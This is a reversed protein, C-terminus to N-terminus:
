YLRKFGTDITVNKDLEFCKDKNLFTDPYESGLGYAWYFLEFGITRDPQLILGGESAEKLHSQIHEKNGYSYSPEILQEKKLGNVIHNLYVDLRSMEENSFGMTKALFSVSMFLRMRTLEPILGFQIHEGNFEKKLAHYFVYHMRLQYTSLRSILSNFYAGRDDRSVGTRSSALVGGFYEISLFDDAYSGENIIGKLVKPSVSGTTNIKNGLKKHANNFIKKLNEIRNKTFSELEKGIYDATPGLVKVVIDKSGLIALGTGLDM